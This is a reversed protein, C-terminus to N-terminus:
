DLFEICIFKVMGLKSFRECLRDGFLINLLRFNCHKSRSAQKSTGDPLTPLLHQNIDNGLSDSLTDFQELLKIHDCKNARKPVQMRRSTCEKRIQEASWEEYVDSHPPKTKGNIPGTWKKSVYVINHSCEENVNHDMDNDYVEEKNLIGDEM